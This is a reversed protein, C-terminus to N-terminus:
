VLRRLLDEGIKWVDGAGVSIFLDGEKLQRLIELPRSPIRACPIKLKSLAKLVTNESVGVVARESAAYIPCVWVFNAIKLAPAFQRALFKTRSFRHPQFCVLLRKYKYFESVAELTAKIETPHHGYDDLFIIGKSEGLVELRRRIGRYRGLAKAISAWPVGALHAALAAALANRVNHLGPIKLEIQAKKKGQFALTFAFGLKKKKLGVARCDVSPRLGYTMKPASTKPLIEERVIPDDACLLAWGYFPVTSLHELFAKKLKAMSGWHDLHDNDVNTVVTLWPQTELFSGDSEDTEMVFLDGGGLMANTRFNRIEGGVIVTPKLGASELIWGIMSSTTTKGHTGSVTISKKLRSIQALLSGRRLLTMKRSKAVAVEPNQYVNVASSYVLINANPPVNAKAHGHHVFVGERRLNDIIASEKMDSGTVQFGMKKLLLALGSMGAGGIGVMHIKLDKTLRGRTQDFPRLKSTAM